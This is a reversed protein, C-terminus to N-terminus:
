CIPFSGHVLSASFLHYRGREAYLLIPNSKHEKCSPSVKASTRRSVFSLSLQCINTTQFLLSPPICITITKGNTREWSKEWGWVRILLFLKERRWWQFNHTTSSKRWFQLLQTTGIIYSRCEHLELATGINVIYMFWTCLVFANWCSCTVSLCQFRGQFYLFRTTILCPFGRLIYVSSKFPVRPPVTPQSVASCSPLDRTRNGITDNSNKMSM